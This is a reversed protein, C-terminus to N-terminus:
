EFPGRCGFSHHDQASGVVQVEHVIDLFHVLGHPFHRPGPLQSPNGLFHPWDGFETRPFLSVYKRTSERKAVQICYQSPSLFRLSKQETIHFSFECRPTDVHNYRARVDRLRARSWSRSVVVSHIASAGAQM